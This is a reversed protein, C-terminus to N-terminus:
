ELLNWHDAEQKLIKIKICEGQQYINVYHKLLM